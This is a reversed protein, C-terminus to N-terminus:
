LVGPAHGRRRSGSLPRGSRKRLGGEVVLDHGGRLDQATWRARWDQYRGPLHFGLGGVTVIGRAELAAARKPGIGPMSAVPSGIRLGSGAGERTVNPLPEPIM